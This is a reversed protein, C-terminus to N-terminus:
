REGVTEVALTFQRRDGHRLAGVGVLQRAVEEGRENTITLVMTYEITGAAPGALTGEVKLAEARPRTDKGATPGAFRLHHKCSPCIDASELITARCHPCNRTAGPTGPRAPNTM